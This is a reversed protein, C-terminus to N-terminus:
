QMLRAVCPLDNPDIICTCVDCAYRWNEVIGLQHCREVMLQLVFEQIWLLLVMDREGEVELEQDYKQTERDRSFCCVSWRPRLLSIHLVGPSVRGLYIIYVTCLM